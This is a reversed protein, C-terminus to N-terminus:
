GFPGAIRCIGDTLPGIYEIWITKEHGSDTSVPSFGTDRPDSECPSWVAIEPDRSLCLGKDVFRWGPGPTVLDDTWGEIRVLSGRKTLCASGDIVSSGARVTGWHHREIPLNGSVIVREIIKHKATHDGLRVRRASGMSDVRFPEAPVEKTRAILPRGLVIALSIIYAPLGLWSLGFLTEGIAAGASIFMATKASSLRADKAGAICEEMDTVAFLIDASVSIYSANTALQREIGDVGQAVRELVPKWRDPPCYAYFELPFNQIFGNVSELIRVIM